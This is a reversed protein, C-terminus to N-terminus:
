GTVETTGPTSREHEQEHEGPLEADSDLVLRREKYQLGDKRHTKKVIRVRHKALERIRELAEGALKKAYDHSLREEDRELHAKIFLRVDSADLYERVSPGGKSWVSGPSHQGRKAWVKAAIYDPRTNTARALMDEDMRALQQIPLLDATALPTTGSRELPDTGNPLRAYTTDDDGTFTEIRDGDVDLRDTLTRVREWELHAGKELERSQLEAIREVNTSARKHAIEATTETDQLDTELARTRDDLDEIDTAHTSQTAELAAIQEHLTDNEAQLAHTKAELAERRTREEELESELTDVRETLEALIATAPTESM